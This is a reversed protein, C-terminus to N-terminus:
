SKLRVVRKAKMEARPLTGIPVLQLEAQFQLRDKIAGAVRQVLGAADPLPEHPELELKVHPMARQTSIIIRFEAIEPFSRVVAEISAPFVNNGRIILMDDVRGLIGGALRIWQCPDTSQTEVDERVWDGTRYRLVPMDVRTLTTITLEGPEGRQVPEDRDLHLVEVLCDPELMTLSGPSDATEIGLPGIETMGWHDIVRANWASEILARTEPINGGPEGAVLITRVGLEHLNLGQQCAVEALRLAYTPTCGLVTIGHTAMLQLRAESSLGGAAICFRGSAVAAEFGAWFGLFPGFSFPFCCRDSPSLRMLRYIRRWSEMLAAWSRPTDLWRLPQGTTTGSTQHLRTFANVPQSLNTGYPPFTAQDNVLESKRLTPLRALDDLSRHRQPDFGAAAFRRQWFVNGAALIDLLEGWRWGQEGRLQERDAQWAGSM